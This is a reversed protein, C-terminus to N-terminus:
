QLETDTTYSSAVYRASLVICSASSIATQYYCLLQVKNDENAELLTAHQNCLTINYLMKHDYM